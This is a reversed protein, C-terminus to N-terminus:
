SRVCLWECMATCQRQVAAGSKVCCSGSLMASLIGSLAIASCVALTVLARLPRVPLVRAAPSAGTVLEAVGVAVPPLLLPPMAASTCFCISAPAAATVVPMVVCIVPSVPLTYQQVLVKNCQATYQNGISATDHHGRLQYLYVAGHSAIQITLLCKCWASCCCTFHLM